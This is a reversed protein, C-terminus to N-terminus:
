PPGRQGCRRPCGASRALRLANREVREEQGESAADIWALRLAPHVAAFEPLADLTRENDAVDGESAREPTRNNVVCLVLTKELMAPSNAALDALTHFLNQLGGQEITDFILVRELPQDLGASVRVKILDHSM